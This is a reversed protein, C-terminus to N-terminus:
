FTFRAVLQGSRPNTGAGNLTNVFGYGGNLAGSTGPLGPFPNGTTAATTSTTAGTPMPYFVRNFPNFFQAQILLQLKETIRFIRGLSLSEAPQRQWRCSSYYPAADGFTETTQNVWANPNLVLTKTPDFHSNPNIALCSQGPVYNELPESGGFNSVGNLPTGGVGMTNWLTINSAPSQILMGSAYKLVAGVNWDRALWSLGKGFGNGNLFGEPLKPTTYLFNIVLVQPQDFGSIQKDTAINFPDNLVPDEPTLYSTNSNAGNTLSKSWTYALQATLGHSYRKTVKIQLSDYWTDGDPPGLFSPVGFWQPYPRLAQALTESNPFGPYVNNPNALAPFRAIVAPNNITDQLLAYDAPNQFSMNQTTGYVGGGGPGETTLSALRQQTLGNFSQTDLLPATFWAGRNGVYYADVVLNSAIERQFGISWQFIRPLRGTKPITIFPEQPPVCGINGSPGCGTSSVPFPYQNYEPFTPALSGTLPNGNALQTAPLFQGPSAITYFNAVSASLFANDASSSYAMSGGARFVTKPTIQYAVGVHPGLSFPYANNLPGNNTAGYVIAGALGGPSYASALATNVCTFCADSMRGHEETYTTAYDWRLGLELTLKRNVKWSDQIFVGWTHNGLRSDNIASTEVYSTQGLLFSAYPFGSTFILPQGYEQPNETQQASFGYEGFARLSSQQPVGDLIMDAGVKFTHNGHVWTMSTNATPKIETDIYGAALGSSGPSPAFFGSGLAIGGGVLADNLGAFSPMYSSAPFDAFTHGGSVGGYGNAAATTAGEDFPVQPGLDPHSYYLLGAGFHFLLTPSITDDFNLRYTFARDANPVAPALDTAFGNANPSNTETASIYGSLKMKSSLMQDVKLSPITTHEFNSYAPIAYNNLGNASTLNPKPFFSQLYLAVPDLRSLPIANNPFPAETIQGNAGVSRTSPDFIQNVAADSPFVGPVPIPFPGFGEAGAFNGSQYAAAPVTAIGNNTVTTQRFQEFSFFFFTRDKGDYLKPIKVPGGLTFGYDNRKVVNKIHGSNFNSACTNNQNCNATFPLGANLANNVFYDYGSGHYQNTGSKMTFNLYGGGAGGYEAAYNSTQVSVEQVADTGQQVSQNIERWLGNTADMGEVMITQSSSPLGNIRLVSDTTQQAGPLVNLVTLPDRINGLGTSGGTGNTTFLPLLDAQSYDVQHSIEGSETKLLPAETSVTVTEASSGVELVADVRITEAVQVLLNPREFKKFGQADVTLAYTGVPVNALTYNGTNSTGIKYIAGTATNTVQISANPVVAGTPDTVTGTITGGAGQGFASLTCILFLSAIKLRM